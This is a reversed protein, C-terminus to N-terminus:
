TELHYTTAPFPPLPSLGLFALIWAPIDGFVFSTWLHEELVDVIRPHKVKM